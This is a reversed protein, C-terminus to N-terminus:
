ILEDVAALLQRADLPQSLYSRAGASFAADIRDPRPDDSLVIVPIARTRPDSNLQQLIELGDGDPLALELLVLHPAENEARVLGEAATSAYRLEVQPRGAFAASLFAPRDPDAHICLIRIPAEALSAAQATGTAPGFSGPVTDAILGMPAMLGAAGATGLSTGAVAPPLAGAAPLAMPGTALGSELVDGLVREAQRRRLSESLDHVACVAAGTRGDRERLVRLTLLAPLVRKDALRLRMSSHQLEDGAQQLLGVIRTQGPHDDDQLLEDIPRRRLEAPTSGVLDAFAVNARQIRGDPEILAVGSQVADFVGDLSREQRQLQARLQDIDRQMDLSRQRSENEIRQVRGTLTLLLAALLGGGALAPLAFLWAGSQTRVPQSIRMAWKRGAFEFGAERTFSNDRPSSTECSPPGYLRRREARTDADFLCAQLADTRTAILPTLVRDIQVTAFVLQRLGTGSEGVLARYIVFSSRGEANPPSVVPSVVAADQGMANNWATRLPEVSALTDGAAAPAGVAGPQATLLHKVVPTGSDGRHAEMWGIDAVGASRALWPRALSDFAAGTLPAPATQMAGHVAQVAQVPADLLAQSRAFVVDADAEFRAFAHQRDREDIAALAGLLLLSLLALPLVVSRRRAIWRSRQPAAFALIVPVLMLVSAADATGRVLAAIGPRTLSTGALTLDALVESLAGLLGSALAVAVLRFIAPPSDLALTDPRSSRRMLLGGFAAQVLLVAADFFQGASPEAFPWSCASLLAGVVVAPLAHWGLRAMGALALALAPVLPAITTNAVEYQPALHWLPPMLLALLLM